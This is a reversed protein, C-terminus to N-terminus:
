DKTGAFTKFYAVLLAITAGDYELNAPMIARPNVSRPNHVYASFTAPDDTAFRALLQWSRPAKRGGVRTGEPQSMAHCRLCNQRAIIMGAQQAQGHADPGRPAIAGYVRRQTTFELSVMEDPAQPRDRHARVSFSPAFGPNTIMYPGPDEVKRRRAWAALPLGEAKLVLLPQHAAIYEFPYHAEYGDSCAASILDSGSPVQLAQRLSALPVGSVEIRPAQMEAFSDDDTVTVTVQPLALLSAYPVFRHAGAPIGPVMGSVDLDTLSQRATMLPLLPPPEAAALLGSALAFVSLAVQRAAHM